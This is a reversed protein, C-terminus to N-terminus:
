SGATALPRTAASPEAGEASRARVSGAAVPAWNKRLGRVTPNWRYM